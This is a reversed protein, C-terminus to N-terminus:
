AEFHKALIANVRDFAAGHALCLGGHRSKGEPGTAAEAMRMHVHNLQLFDARLQQLDHELRGKEERHM